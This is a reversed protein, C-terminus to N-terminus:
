VVEVEIMKAETKRLALSYGKVKIHLPDRLPAHREVRIPTGKTIGMDLLRQKIAGTGVISTITVTDGEKCDALTM